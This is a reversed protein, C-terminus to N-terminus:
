VAVEVQVQARPRVILAHGRLRVHDALRLVKSLLFLDELGRGVLLGLALVGGFDVLGDGLHKVLPEPVMLLAVLKLLGHALDLAAGLLGIQSGFVFSGEQLM